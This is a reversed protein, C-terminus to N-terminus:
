DVLGSLTLMFARLNAADSDGLPEPAGARHLWMSKLKALTLATPRIPAGLLREGDRAGNGLDHCSVCWTFYLSAGADPDGPPPDGESGQPSGADSWVELADIESQTLQTGYDLPMRRPDSTDLYLEVGHDLIGDEIWRGISDAGRIVEGAEVRTAYVNLDLDVVINDPSTDQLPYAHCYGCKLALLEGVGNVFSPEGSIEVERPPQDALSDADSCHLAALGAVVIALTSGRVFM